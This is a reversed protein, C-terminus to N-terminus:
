VEDNWEKRLDCETQRFKKEPVICYPEGLIFEVGNDEAVMKLCKERSIVGVFHAVTIIAILITLIIELDTM